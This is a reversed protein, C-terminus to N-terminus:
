AKTPLTLHTYSVTTLISGSLFLVIPIVVEISGLAQRNPIPVLDPKKQGLSGVIGFPWWTPIPFVIPAIHGVEVGFKRAVIVRSYSALILSFMVPTTFFFFSWGFESVGTSGYDYTSVWHEGVLTMFGAMVVWLAVQQSGRLVSSGVPARSIIMVPPNSDELSGVLGMPELHNNLRLLQEGVVLDDKGSVEWSNPYAGENGLDFFRSAIVELLERTGWTESDVLIEETVM